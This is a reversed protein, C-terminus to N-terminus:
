SVNEVKDLKEFAMKLFILVLYLLLQSIELFMKLIKSIKVYKSNNEHMNRLFTSIGSINM